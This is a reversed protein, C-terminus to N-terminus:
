DLQEAQLADAALQEEEFADTARLETLDSGNRHVERRMQVVQGWRLNHEAM